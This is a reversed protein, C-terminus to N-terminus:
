DKTVGSGTNTGADFPQVSDELRDIEDELGSVEIKLRDIEDELGSVEIKLAEIQVDREAIQRQLADMNSEAPAEAEICALTACADGALVGVIVKLVNNALLAPPKCYAYERHQLTSAHHGLVMVVAALMAQHPLHTILERAFEDVDVDDVLAGVLWDHIWPPTIKNDTTMNEEKPRKPKRLKESM